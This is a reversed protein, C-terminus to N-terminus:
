VGKQTLFINGESIAVGIDNNCSEGGGSSASDELGVVLATDVQDM